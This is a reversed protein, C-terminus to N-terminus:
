ARPHFRGHIARLRAAEVHTYIQTTAVSAHGLMEQVARLDAGNGLLHTAFSHRLTHPSVHKAIGAARCRSKVIRWVQERGLRRGRKSLFLAGDQRGGGGRLSPRAAELYRGIAAVAQRGIPVLREKRGKGFVRLYGLDLRASAADLGCVESVRAGTAYLAELVARDRLDLPGPGYEADLLRSVEAPSLFEPIRRWARPAEVIAVLDKSIRREGALWRFLGRIPVLARALSREDLGRRAESWLFARVDDAEVREPGAIRSEACHRAFRALDRRYARLTNEALGCEVALYDLFDRIASRM